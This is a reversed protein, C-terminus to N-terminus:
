DNSLLFSLDFNENWLLESQGNVSLEFKENILFELEENWFSLNEIISLEYIKIQEFSLSKRQWFCKMKEM